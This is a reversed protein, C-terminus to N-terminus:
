PREVEVKHDEKPLEKTKLQDILRITLVVPTTLIVDAWVYPNISVLIEEHTRCWERWKENMSKTYGKKTLCDTFTQSRTPDISQICEQTDKEIDGPRVGPKVEKNSGTCSVTLFVILISLILFRKM